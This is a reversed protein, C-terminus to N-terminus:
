TKSINKDHEDGRGQKLLYTDIARRIHESVPLGTQGSLRKLRDIQSKTLYFATRIM